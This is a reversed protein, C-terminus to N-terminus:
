GTDIILTTSALGCNDSGYCARAVVVYAGPEAPLPMEADFEGSSVNVSAEASLPVQVAPTGAPAIGVEVRAQPIEYTDFVDMVDPRNGTYTYDASAGVETRILGVEKRWPLIQDGGTVGISDLPVTWTIAGDRMTGALQMLPNCCGTEGRHQWLRFFPDLNGPTQAQATRMAELVFLQESSRVGSQPAAHFGWWYHITEPPGFLVPVEDAVKLTFVLESRAPDPRSITGGTLDVGGGPIRADGDPDWAVGHPRDIFRATGSVSVVGGVVGATVGEVRTSSGEATAVIAGAAPAAAVVAFAVFLASAFGLVLRIIRTM